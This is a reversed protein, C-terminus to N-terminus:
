KWYSNVVSHHVFSSNRCISNPKVTLSAKPTCIWYSSTQWQTNTHTHTALYAAVSYAIICKYQPWSGFSKNSFLQKTFGTHFIIHVPTTMWKSQSKQSWLEVKSNLIWYLVCWVTIWAFVQSMWLNKGSHPLSSILTPPRGLNQAWSRRSEKDMGPSRYESPM